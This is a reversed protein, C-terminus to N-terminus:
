GTQCRVSVRIGGMNDVSTWFSLVEAPRLQSIVALALVDVDNDNTGSVFSTYNAGGSTVSTFQGSGLPLGNRDRLCWESSTPFVVPRDASLSIGMVRYVGSATYESVDFETLQEGDAIVKTMNFHDGGGASVGLLTELNVVLSVRGGVQVAAGRTPVEGDGFRAFFSRWAENLPIPIDSDGVISAGDVSGVASPAISLAEGADPGGYQGFASKGCTPCSM